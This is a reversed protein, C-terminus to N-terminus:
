DKSQMCHVCNEALLALLPPSSRFFRHGCRPCRFRQWRFAAIASAAVWAVSPWILGGAGYRPILVSDALSLDLALGFFLVLWFTWKLLRYDAWNSDEM